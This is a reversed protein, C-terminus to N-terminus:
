HKIIIFKDNELKYNYKYIKNGNNAKKYIEFINKKINYKACECKFLDCLNIYKYKGMEWIFIDTNAIEGYTSVTILKNEFKVEVANIIQKFIKPIGQKDVIFYITNYNNNNIINNLKYVNYRIDFNVCEIKYNNNYKLESNYNNCIDYFKNNIEIYTGICKTNKDIYYHQKINDICYIEKEIENDKLNCLSISEYNYDKTKTVIKVNKPGYMFKIIYSLVVILMIVYLVYNKKKKKM